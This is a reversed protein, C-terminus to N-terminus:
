RNWGSRQRALIARRRLNGSEIDQWLQEIQPLTVGPEALLLQDIEPRHARALRLWSRITVPSTDLIEATQRISVGKLLLKLASLLRSTPSRLEYFPSGSTSCFSRGCARCLFRRSVGTNTRYSGNAVIAGTGTEGHNKCDPNPCSLASLDHVPKRGRRTM